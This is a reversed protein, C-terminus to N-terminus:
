QEIQAILVELGENRFADIEERESKEDTILVDVKDLPMTPFNAVMGLKSSDALVIVQGHCHDVMMRNVGTEQQVSCTLGKLAHISNTSLITCNSYIERLTYIAMDGVLSQSAERFEGGVLYVEVLPDKKVQLVAANNTIIRVNKGSLQRVVELTTSGSNLFVTDGDRILEVAKKAIARKELVNLHGKETLRHERTEGNKAKAGGHVREIKGQQDLVDLDRRITIPSVDFEESLENVDVKGDQSLIDVIRDQRIASVRRKGM